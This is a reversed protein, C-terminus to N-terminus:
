RTPLKLQYDESRMPETRIVKGTEVETWVRMKDIRDFELTCKYFVQKKGQSLHTAMLNVNATAQDIKAKFSSTVATKEDGLAQVKLSEQALDQAIQKKESDSFVYDGMIDFVEKLDATGVM